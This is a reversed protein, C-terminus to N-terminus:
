RLQALKQGSAGAKRLAPAQKILIQITDGCHPVQYSTFFGESAIDDLNVSSEIIVCFKGLHTTPKISILDDCETFDYIIRDPSVLGRSMASALEYTEM